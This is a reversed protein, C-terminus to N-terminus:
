TGSGDWPSSAGAGPVFLLYQYYDTTVGKSPQVEKIKWLIEQDFPSDAGDLKVLLLKGAALQGILNAKTQYSGFPLVDHSFSKMFHSDQYVLVMSFVADQYGVTKDLFSAFWEVGMQENQFVHNLGWQGFYKGTGDAGAQKLFSAYMAKDRAANWLVGGNPTPLSVAELLSSLVLEFDDVLIGLSGKVVDGELEDLLGTLFLHMEHNYISREGRLVRAIEGLMTESLHNDDVKDLLYQLYQFALIPYHEVDVGLLAFKKEEPLSRYLDHVRRWHRYSEQTSFYTGEAASFLFDLLEEDGTELYDRLFGVVSPPLELLYNQVGGDTVLFELLASELEQNISMGHSEGVLFIRYNEVEMQLQTSMTQLDNIIWSYKILYERLEVSDVATVPEPDFRLTSRALEVLQLDDTLVEMVKRGRLDVKQPPHMQLFLRYIAEAQEETETVVLNIQLNGQPTSLLYNRLIEVPAGLQNSFIELDGPPALYDGVCTWHEPLSYLDLVTGEGEWALATGISLFCILVVALITRRM